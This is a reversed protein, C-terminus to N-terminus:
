KIYYVEQRIKHPINAVLTFGIFHTLLMLLSVTTGITWQGGKIGMMLYFSTNIVRVFAPAVLVLLMCGFCRNFQHVFDIILLYRRNWKPILIEYETENAQCSIDMENGIMQLMTSAMWGLCSFVIVAMYLYVIM